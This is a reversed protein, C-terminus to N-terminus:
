GEAQQGRLDKFVLLVKIERHDWRELVGTTEV